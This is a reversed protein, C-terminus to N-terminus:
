NTQFALRVDTASGVQPTVVSTTATLTTFSGTLPTSGGIVMNNITGATAPNITVTGTGTPSLTASLNAPNFTLAGGFTTITKNTLTETGALTALTGTTPLTVDTAATSRLTIAGAGATTFAVALALAAATVTQGTGTPNIVVAKNANGALVPLKDFGAQILDFEARAPSSAGFSGTSPYNSSDYYEPM